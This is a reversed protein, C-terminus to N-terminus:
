PTDCLGPDIPDIISDKRDNPPSIIGIKYYNEPLSNEYTKM